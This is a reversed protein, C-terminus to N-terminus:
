ESVTVRREIACEWMSQTGDVMIKERVVAQLHSADEFNETSACQPPPTGFSVSPLPPLDSSAASRSRTLRTLSERRATQGRGRLARGRRM